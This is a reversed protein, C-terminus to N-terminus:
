FQLCETVTSTNYNVSTHKFFRRLTIRLKAGSAQILRKTSFSFHYTARCMSWVIRFVVILKRSRIVLNSILLLAVCNFCYPLFIINHWTWCHCRSQSWLLPSTFALALAQPPVTTLQLQAAAWEQCSSHCTKRLNSGTSRLNPPDWFVTHTHAPTTCHPFHKCQCLRERVCYPWDTIQSILRRNVM